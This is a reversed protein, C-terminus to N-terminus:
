ETANLHELLTPCKETVGFITHGTFDLVYFNFANKCIPFYNSKIYVM